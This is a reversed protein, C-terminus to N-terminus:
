GCRIASVPERYLKAPPPATLIQKGECACQSVYKRRLYVDQYLSEVYEFLRSEETQDLKKYIVGCISCVCDDREIESVDGVPVTSRDTRGHGKSGGKQGRENPREAKAKPEAGGKESAAGYVKKRFWTLTKEQKAIKTDREAVDKELRRICAQLYEETARKGNLLQEVQAQLREVKAELEACKREAAERALKEQRLELRLKQIETSNAAAHRKAPPVLRKQM